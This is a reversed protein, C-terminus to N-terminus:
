DLIEKYYIVLEAHREEIDKISVIEFYRVPAEPTATSNVTIRMDPRIDSRYRINIQGTIESNAQMAEYMKRGANPTVAGWVTALQAWTVIEEQFSDRARTEKWFTLRKNLRGAKM